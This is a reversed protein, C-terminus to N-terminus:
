YQYGKFEMPKINPDPKQRQYKGTKADYVMGQLWANLNQWWWPSDKPIGAARMQEEFDGVAKQNKLVESMINLNNIEAQLKQVEVQTTAYKQRLLLEEAKKNLLEQAKLEMDKANILKERENRDIGIQTSSEISKNELKAKEIVTEKLAQAQELDFQDRANKINKNALESEKILQEKQM